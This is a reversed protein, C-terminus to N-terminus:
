SKQRMYPLLPDEGEKVRVSSVVDIFLSFIEVQSSIDLKRYINKRHVKATGEAMDLKNSVREIPYGRLMLTLVEQERLTLISRGFNSRAHEISRHIYQEAEQAAKDAPIRTVEPEWRQRLIASVLPGITKLGDIETQTCRMKGCSRGMSLLVQGYGPVSTYFCFEDLLGTNLYHIKYYESNEFESGIIESLAACGSGQYRSKNLYFPDLIYYIRTYEELRNHRVPCDRLKDLVRPRRDTPYGFVVLYDTDFIAGLESVLASFTEKADQAFLIHALKAYWDRTGFYGERYSPKTQTFTLDDLRM